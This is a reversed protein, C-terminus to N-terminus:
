TECILNIVAFTKQCVPDFASVASLVLPWQGAGLFSINDSITRNGSPTSLGIKLSLKGAAVVRLYFGSFCFFGLKELGM